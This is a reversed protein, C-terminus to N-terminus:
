VVCRTSSELVAHSLKASCLSALRSLEASILVEIGEIPLKM